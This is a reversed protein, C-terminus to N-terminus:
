CKNKQAILRSAKFSTITKGSGTTHWIYGNEHPNEKAQLLIAETAYVQYPRM